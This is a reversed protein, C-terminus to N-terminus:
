EEFDFRVSLYRLPIFLEVEVWDLFSNIAEETRKNSIYSNRCLVRCEVVGESAIECEVKKLNGNSGEAVQINETLTERMARLIDRFRSNARKLLNEQQECEGQVVGGYERIEDLCSTFYEANREAVDAM